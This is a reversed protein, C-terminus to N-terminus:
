VVIPYTMEKWLLRFGTVSRPDALHPRHAETYRKSAKTRKGYRDLLEDLHKRQERTLNEQSGKKIVNYPGFASAESGEVEFTTKEGLSTANAAPFTNLIKSHRSTHGKQDATVATVSSPVVSGNRLLELQRSMIELQKSVIREMTESSLTLPELRKPLG